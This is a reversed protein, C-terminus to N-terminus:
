QIVEDARLLLAHPITLGLLKATKLNIVMEFKNPQEVPLDAPRAGKFIKDVYTAARRFIDRQDVEYAILGGARTIEAQATMLPLRSRAGLEAIQGRVGFYMPDGTVLLAHASERTAASFAAALEAPARAEVIQLRLKLARAADEADRVIRAYRRNAPNLLVAVRSMQPVVHVLLQLQKGVLDSYQGTLGRVNAGPRALSAILGAGVPDGHNTMVIPLTSTARKAAEAAYSAAVIVDVKREVLEAALSDLREAKGESFRAEVVLNQGDVYGLHRLGEFLGGWIQAAGADILPVTGLVGVRFVKAGQQPAAVDPSALLSALVIAGLGVRTLRM